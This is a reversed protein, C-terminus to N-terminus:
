AKMACPRRNLISTQGAGAGENTSRRCMTDAPARGPSSPRAFPCNPMPLPYVGGNKIRFFEASRVLRPKAYSCALSMCPRLSAEMSLLHALWWIPPRRGTQTDLVPM